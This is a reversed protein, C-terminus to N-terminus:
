VPTPVPEGRRWLRVLTIAVAVIIVGLGLLYIWPYRALLNGISQGFTAGIWLGVAAWVATSVAVSPAFIRYPVGTSAALVTVPVRFGPVHRGFIIALPGWRQSWHRVRELRAEDIGLVDHVLRHRLLLPAWRRSILYLNTSGGVVVAIIGLWALVLNTFSSSNVKGLYAVYVDGPVPLPIGSEEIYLLTFCAAAGFRNLLGSVLAGVGTIDDAVDGELLTIVLLVGAVLSVAVVTPRSKLLRM